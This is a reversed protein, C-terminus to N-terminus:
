AYIKIETEVGFLKDIEGVLRAREENGLANQKEVEVIHLLEEYTPKESMTKVLHGVEDARDWQQQNLILLDTNLKSFGDPVLPYCWKNLEYQCRILEEELATTDRGAALAKVRKIRLISLRDAIQGPSPEFLIM